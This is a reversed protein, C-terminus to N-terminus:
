PTLAQTAARTESRSLEHEHELPDEHHDHDTVATMAIFLTTLYTFIFAQLFAIFLELLSLAFNLFVVGIGVGYGVTADYDQAFIFIMGVLAALVLHGALMTGFLRVALVVSKILLGLWELFFLPIGVILMKPDNWGLPNFHALFHKLGTERIGIYLIAIFSCLALPANLSLNSTATGGFKGWFYPDEAGVLLAVSKAFYGIPVMGLVNCTLIFFFVTWIYPIYKETLHKLNPRAVNELIFECMTEFLQTISGKTVYSEADTGSRRMRGAFWYAVLAVLVAAFTGMLLHNTITFGGIEFIDKPLVSELPNSAALLTTVMMATAIETSHIM